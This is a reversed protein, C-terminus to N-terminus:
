KKVKIFNTIQTQLVLLILRRCLGQERNPQTQKHEEEVERIRMHKVGTEAESKIDQAAKLLDEKRTAISNTLPNPQQNAKVVVGTIGQILLYTKEMMIREIKRNPRNFSSKM